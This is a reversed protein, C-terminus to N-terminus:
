YALNFKEMIRIFKEGVDSDFRDFYEAYCDSPNTVVNLLPRRDMGTETEKVYKLIKERVSKDVECLRDLMNYIDQYEYLKHGNIMIM